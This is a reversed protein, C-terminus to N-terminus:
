LTFGGTTLRNNLGKLASMNKKGQLGPYSIRPQLLIAGGREALADHKAAALQPLLAFLMARQPVRVEPHLFLRPIQQGFPM